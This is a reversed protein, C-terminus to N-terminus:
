KRWLLVKGDLNQDVSIEDRDELIWLEGRRGVINYNEVVEVFPVTDDILCEYRNRGSERVASGYFLIGGLVLTLAVLSFGGLVWAREQLALIAMFLSLCAFCSLALFVWPSIVPEMVPYQNLIEM